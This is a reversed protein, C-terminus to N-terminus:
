SPARYLDLADPNALAGVNAVTRGHLVDRVATEAIKGSVTRPIDAVPVIVHSRFLM